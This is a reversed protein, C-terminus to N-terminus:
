LVSQGLAWTCKCARSARMTYYNTELENMVLRSLRLNWCIDVESTTVHYYWTLCPQLGLAIVIELQAGSRLIHTAPFVFFPINPYLTHLASSRNCISRM